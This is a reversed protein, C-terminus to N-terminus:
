NKSILDNSEKWNNYNIWYKKNRKKEAEEM